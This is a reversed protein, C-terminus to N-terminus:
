EWASKMKWMRIKDFTATGGSSFLQVGNDNEAPFVQMTMNTTGDNAFVEIISNDFYIHLSIISDDLALSTEFRALRDYNKNVSHSICHSRDMYLKKAYADYGIEVYNGDGVALKIGSVGASPRFETEIELQRGVTDYTKHDTVLVSEDALLQGKLKEINDVPKQKLLWKDENKELTLERPLTMAGKWPYTPIDNAYQWNNAWAIMVPKQAAPLQNYVIGAYFDPGEDPRLITDAPTENQFTTGDFEGVFYQMTSSISNTLVWKKKAADDALPVQFLAPCEWIGSVDGAPGFESLFTWQLLNKSKYLQVKHEIPLSVIMVWYKKPEYWFVQPDRFDKKHLNLIPNHSYKTWTRGNDNSYALMQSQITDTHGTYIAVMPGKGAKGLGSTNNKDVVCTGSFIMIGNEEKIAPPLHKWHVLDKSVAHGWTMHGWKNDFPNYQYFIHYEGNSYVLGNPDNTWNVAPSFHYQPRYNEKYTATQTHALVCLVM